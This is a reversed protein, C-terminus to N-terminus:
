LVEHNGLFVLIRWWLLCSDCRDRCTSGAALLARSQRISKAIESLVDLRRRVGGTMSEGEGLKWAQSASLMSSNCHPPTRPTPSSSTRSTSGLSWPTTRPCCGRYKGPLHLFFSTDAVQKERVGMRPVRHHCDSQHKQLRPFLVIAKANGCM